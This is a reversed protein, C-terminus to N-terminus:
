ESENSADEVKVGNTVAAVLDDQSAIKVVLTTKSAHRLAQAPNTAKILRVNEGVNNTVAYIRQNVRTEQLQRDFFTARVHPERLRVREVAPPDFDAWNRRPMSLDVYTPQRDTKERRRLLNIM